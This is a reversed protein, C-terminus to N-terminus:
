NSASFDFGSETPTPASSTSGSASSTSPAPTSATPRYESKAEIIISKAATMISQQEADAKGELSPLGLRQVLASQNALDSADKSGLLKFLAQFAQQPTM